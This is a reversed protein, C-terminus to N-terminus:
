EKWRWIENLMEKCFKIMLLDITVRTGIGEPELETGRLVPDLAM